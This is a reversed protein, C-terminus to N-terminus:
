KKKGGLLSDSLAAALEEIEKSVLETERDETKLRIVKIKEELDKDLIKSNEIFKDLSKDRSLIEKEHASEIVKIEKKHAERTKKVNDVMVEAKQRFFFWTIAAFALSLPIYWHNKIWVYSKKLFVKAVLLNM